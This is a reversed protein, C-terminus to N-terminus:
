TSIGWVCNEYMIQNLFLNNGIGPFFFIKKLNNKDTKYKKKKKGGNTKKNVLKEISPM